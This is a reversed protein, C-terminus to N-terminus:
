LQVELRTSTPPNGVEVPCIFRADELRKVGEPIEFFVVGRAEQGQSLEADKLLKNWIDQKLRENVSATQSIALASGMPVFLFALILTVLGVLGWAIAPGVSKRHLRDTVEDFPVPSLPQNVNSATLRMQAMTLRVPSTGQNVVAVHVPALSRKTLNTDFYLKSLPKSFWLEAGLFVNEQTTSNRFSDVPYTPLHAARYAACGGTTMALVYATLLSVRQRVTYAFVMSLGDCNPPAPPIM